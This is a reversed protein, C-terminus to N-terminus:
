RHLRKPIEPAACAKRHFSRGGMPIQLLEGVSLASMVALLNGRLMIREARDIQHSRMAPAGAAGAIKMKAIGILPPEM